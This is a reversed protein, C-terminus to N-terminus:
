VVTEIAKKLLALDEKSTINSSAALINFFLDLSDPTIDYDLDNLNLPMDMYKMLNYIEDIEKQPYQNFAMQILIGVAVIEGHLHSASNQTNNNRMFDYAAHALALQGSGDAFGSVISTHLLNTLICDSFLRADKGNTYLDVAENKLFEYIIEANKIQIYECLNCDLYSSVRKLHFSEPLKAISDFIGAALLRRPATGILDDDAICVDIAKKLKVSITRKGSDDYMIAVMSTAVCTAISTPVTIIPLESYVSACKVTDICKGGGCAVLVTCNNKLAIDAYHQAWETTCQATHYSTYYSVSSRDLQNAVANMVLDLTSKGGIIFARGGLRVIEDALRNVAGQGHYYKGCGIKLATM